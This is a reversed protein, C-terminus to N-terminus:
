TGEIVVEPERLLITEVLIERPFVHKDSTVALATSWRALMIM